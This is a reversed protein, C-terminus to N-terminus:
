SREVLNHLPLNVLTPVSKRGTDSDGWTAMSSVVLDPLQPPQWPLVFLLMECFTILLVFTKSMIATTFFYTVQGKSVHIINTTIVLLWV